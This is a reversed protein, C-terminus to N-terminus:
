VFKKFTVAIVNTIVDLELKEGNQSEILKKM